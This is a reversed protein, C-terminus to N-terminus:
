RPIKEGHDATIIVITNELDIKELIKGIWYDISSVIKEYKTSGFKETDFNELGTPMSGERIAHLDFIHLFYDQYVFDLLM